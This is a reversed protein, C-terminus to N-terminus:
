IQESLYARLKHAQEQDVFVKRQEHSLMGRQELANICRSITRLNLGTQEAMVARLPAEVRGCADGGATDYHQLLLYALKQVGSHFLLAREKSHQRGNKRIIYVTVRYLAAACSKMWQRFHAAPLHVLTCGASCIVTGLVCPNELLAETEGLVMPATGEEIEYLQGDPMNKYIKVAGALCFYVDETDFGAYYLVDGAKRHEISCVAQVEQPMEDWFSLFWREAAPDASLRCLDERTLM